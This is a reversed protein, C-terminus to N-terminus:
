PLPSITIEPFSMKLHKSGSLLMCGKPAQSLVPLPLVQPQGSPSLAANCSPLVGLCENLLLHTVTPHLTGAVCRFFSCLHSSAGPGKSNM